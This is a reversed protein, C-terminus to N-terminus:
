YIQTSFYPICFQVQGIDTNEYHQRGSMHLHVTVDTNVAPNIHRLTYVAFGNSVEWVVVNVSHLTALAVIEAQGSCLFLFILAPFYCFLLIMLLGAWSDSTMDAVYNLWMDQFRSDLQGPIFVTGADFLEVNNYVPNRHEAERLIHENLATIRKSPDPSNAFFDVVLQRLNQVSTALQLSNKFSSFLCHGDAPVQFANYYKDPESPNSQSINLQFQSVVRSKQLSSSTKKKTSSTDRNDKKSPSTDSRSTQASKTSKTHNATKSSNKSKNQKPLPHEAIAKKSLDPNWMGNSDFGSFWHLMQLNPKLLLLHKDNQSPAFPLIRLDTMKQVRSWGVLCKEATLAMRPWLQLDLCLKNFSKSQTKEFTLSWGLDYSHSRYKIYQIPKGLRSILEYPKVPEHNSKADIMIPVIYKDPLLSDSRLYDRTDLIEVNVSLPPHELVILDAPKAKNLKQFVQPLNELPDFTISHLRFKTGNHLGISTNINQKGYGPAGPVFFGSLAPHSAYLNNIETATLSAANAGHLRNRWAIIPYGMITAFNKLGEINILHRLRNYLVVLPAMLWSPDEVVDSYQLKQYSSV